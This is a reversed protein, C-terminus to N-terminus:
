CVKRAMVLGSPIHLVKKVVGGNGAGLDGMDRFDEVTLEGIKHKQNIFAELRLRQTADLELGELTRQM